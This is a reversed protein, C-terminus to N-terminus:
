TREEIINQTNVALVTADEGDRTVSELPVTLADKKERLSLQSEAYM